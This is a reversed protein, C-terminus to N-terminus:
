QWINDMSFHLPRKVRLRKQQSFYEIKLSGFNNFYFMYIQVYRLLNILTM